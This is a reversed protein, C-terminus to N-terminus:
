CFVASSIRMLSQLASTHEESRRTRGKISFLKVLAAVAAAPLEMVNFIPYSLPAAFIGAAGRAPPQGIQYPPIAACPSKQTKLSRSVLALGVGGGAKLAQRVRNLSGAPM